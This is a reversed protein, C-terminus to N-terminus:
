WKSPFTHFVLHAIFSFESKEQSFSSHLKSWSPRRFMVALNWLSQSLNPRSLDDISLYFCVSYTSPNQNNQFTPFLQKQVSFSSRSIAIDGTWLFNPPRTIAWKRRISLSFVIFYTQDRFEAIQRNEFERRYMGERRLFFKKTRKKPPFVADPGESDSRGPYYIRDRTFTLSGIVIMLFIKQRFHLVTEYNQIFILPSSLRKNQNM